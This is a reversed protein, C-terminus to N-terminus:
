SMDIDGDGDEDDPLDEWEDGDDEQQEEEPTPKIGLSDLQGILEITHELLKDDPHELNTHLSRCNELCDRSDKALEEWSLEEIKTNTEKAQEAMLYFCWGELYWAEVDQDDTAMITQLVHLAAAYEQVELFRKTLEIRSSIAPIKSEDEEDKWVSWAQIAAQKAEEPKQQSLRFSSLCILADINNSDTEFATKLLNECTEEAKPDFCLDYTPAMWIEVMAVLVKVINKRIDAESEESDDADTPADAREKGKLQNHLIGVAAEYHKLALNPDEDSLQALYLHASAPVVTSRTPSLLSQFTKKADELEGMELQTIGLLERADVHHPDRELIRRIFKQSLEYNCQTILSQAKSLLSQTSPEEKVVTAPSPKSTIVKGSKTRIRGM